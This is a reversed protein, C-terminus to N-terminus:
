SPVMGQRNAPLINHPAKRARARRRLDMFRKIDREEFRLQRGAYIAQVQGSHVWRRVTKDSLKFRAAGEQLLSLKEPTEGMGEGRKEHPM